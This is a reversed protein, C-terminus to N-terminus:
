RLDRLLDLALLSSSQSVTAPEGIGDEARGAMMAGIGTPGSAFMEDLYDLAQATVWRSLDDALLRHLNSALEDTAIAVLIRYVDHADKDVLRHPSDRREALKHMKAVLLAAPGAVKATITREDDTDLSAISLMKWDVAAAELGIARRFTRRDNPPHIASRRGRGGAIAEPVMLDVPIGGTSLWAGPQGSDPNLIFGARRMAQDVRTGSGLARTDVALDSDKTYEAIAVTADGTHLYIAQAGIVIVLERYEALAALADLLVTRAQVLLGDDDGPNSM